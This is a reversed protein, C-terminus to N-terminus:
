WSLNHQSTDCFGELLLRQLSQSGTTALDLTMTNISPEHWACSMVGAYTSKEMPQGLRGHARDNLVAVDYSKLVSVGRSCFEKAPLPMCRPTKAAQNVKMAICLM